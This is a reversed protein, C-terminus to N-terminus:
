NEDGHKSDDPHIVVHRHRLIRGLCATELALIFYARVRVGWNMRDHCRNGRKELLKMGARKAKGLRAAEQDRSHLDGNEGGYM